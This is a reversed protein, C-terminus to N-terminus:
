ADHKGSLFVRPGRRKVHEKYRKANQDAGNSLEVQIDTPQDLLKGGQAELHPGRARRGSHRQRVGSVGESGESESQTEACARRSVM